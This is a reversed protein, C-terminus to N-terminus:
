NYTTAQNNLFHLIKDFLAKGGVEWLNIHGASEVDIFEKDKSKIASFITESNSIDIAEDQGGHIILTPQTIHKSYKIPSADNPDFDGIRGAREVLFDSVLALNFGTHRKFYGQINSKLDTYTSESIGYAIRHDSGMSQITLAGGISQGWIGINSLDEENILVDVLKQIDKSEKVGFTFFQGESEGFGRIDLAVSNFGNKALFKSLDYFHMKTHSSGHLLIITGKPKAIHTYTLLASQELNDYTLFKLKKRKFMASNNKYLTDTYVNQTKFSELIPNRREIIFRPFIFYFILLGVMVLILFTRKLIKIIRNKLM